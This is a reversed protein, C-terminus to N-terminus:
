YVNYSKSLDITLTKPYARLLQTIRGWITTESGAKVQVHIEVAVLDVHAEGSSWWAFTPYLFRM